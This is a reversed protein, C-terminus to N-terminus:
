KSNSHPTKQPLFLILEHSPLHDLYSSDIQAFVFFDCSGEKPAGQKTHLFFAFCCCLVPSTLDSLWRKLAQWGGTSNYCNPQANSHHHDTHRVATSCTQRDNDNNNNSNSNNQQKDINAKAHQNHETMTSAHSARDRTRSAEWRRWCQQALISSRAQHPTM